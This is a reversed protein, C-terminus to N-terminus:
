LLGEMRLLLLLPDMIGSPQVSTVHQSLGTSDEYPAVGTASVAGYKVPRFHQTLENAFAPYLERVWQGIETSRRELEKVYEKMEKAGALRLRPKEALPGYDPNGWLQDTKTFCVVVGMRGSQGLEDIVNLLTNALGHLVAVPTKGSSGAEARIKALDVLLVLNNLRSLLSIDHSITEQRNFTEGPVDILNLLLPRTTYGAVLPGVKLAAQPVDNMLLILSDMVVRTAPPLEGLQLKSVYEDQVRDLTAQNLGNFSFSDWRHAPDGVFLANMFSALYCTKGHGMYGITLMNVVPVGGQVATLYRNPIARMTSPCEKVKAPHEELCYPCVVTQEDSGM